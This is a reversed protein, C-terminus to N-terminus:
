GLFKQLSFVSLIPYSSFCRRELLGAGPLFHVSTPIAASEKDTRKMFMQDKTVHHYVTNIM